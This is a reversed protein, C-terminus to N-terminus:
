LKLFNYDGIPLGCAVLTTCPCVPFSYFVFLHAECQTTFEDATRPGAAISYTLFTLITQVIVNFIYSKFPSEHQLLVLADMWTSIQCVKKTDIDRLFFSM